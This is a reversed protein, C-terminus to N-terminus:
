RKPLSPRYDESDIHIIKCLEQLRSYIRAGIRDGLPEEANARRAKEVQQDRNLLSRSKEREQGKTPAAFDHNTTIILAGQGHQYRQNILHYMTEQVWDTLREAGLDDLILVEARVARDLVEQPTSQTVPNYANRMQELLEKVNCYYVDIGKGLLEKAIAISLHTKGTGCRGSFLLGTKTLAPYDRAFRRAASRAQSLVERKEGADDNPVDISYNEFTKEAFRKPIGAKSLAFKALAEDRCECPVVQPLAKGAVVEPRWGSGGCIQCAAHEAPNASTTAM